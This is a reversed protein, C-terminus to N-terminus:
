YLPSHRRWPRERELQAALGLLVSENGPTSVLQVALPLGQPSVGLPVSAAPYGALNWTASMPAYRVSAVVSHLWSGEGWRRAAPAPQALSPMVLVNHREFFPAM